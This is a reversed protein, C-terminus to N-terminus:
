LNGEHAGITRGEASDITSGHHFVWWPGHTFGSAKQKPKPKAMAKSTTELPFIKDEKKEELAPQDSRAALDVDSQAKMKRLKELNEEEDEIRADEIIEEEEEEAEEEAGGGGGGDELQVRLAMTSSSRASEASDEDEELFPEKRKKPTGKASALIREKQQQFIEEIIESASM